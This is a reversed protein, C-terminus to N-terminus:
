ATHTLIFGNRKARSFLVWCTEAAVNRMFSVSSHKVLGLGPKDATKDARSHSDLM